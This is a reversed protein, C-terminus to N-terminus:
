LLYNILIILIPGIVLSHASSKIEIRKDIMNMDKHNDYEQEIYWDIKIKDNDKLVVDNKQGRTEFLRKFRVTM